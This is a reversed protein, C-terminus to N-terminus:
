LLRLFRTGSDSGNKLYSTPLKDLPVQSSTISNSKFKSPRVGFDLEKVLWFGGPSNWSSYKAPEQEIFLCPKGPPNTWLVFGDLTNGSGEAM